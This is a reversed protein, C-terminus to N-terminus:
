LTAQRLLPMSAQMAEREVPTPFGPKVKSTQAVSFDGWAKNLLRDTLSEGILSVLLNAPALLLAQAASRAAAPQRSVLDIRPPGAASAAFGTRCETTRVRSQGPPATCMGRGYSARLARVGILPILEAMLLTLADVTANVVFPSHALPAAAENLLIEITESL